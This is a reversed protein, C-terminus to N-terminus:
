VVLVLVYWGVREFRWVKLQYTVDERIPHERRKLDANGSDESM